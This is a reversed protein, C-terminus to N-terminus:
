EECCGFKGVVVDLNRLMEMWKGVVVDMKWCNVVLKVVLNKWNWIVTTKVSNTNGLKSIM